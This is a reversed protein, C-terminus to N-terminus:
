LDGGQAAIGALGAACIIFWSRIGPMFAAGYAVSFLMSAVLGGIAGEVTKNPSVRPSLPRKGAARGVFYAFTDGAAVAVIGLLAWHEGGPLLVIRPWVSLFGGIYVVGLVSVAASRLRDAPTGEASIFRFSIIAVCIAMASAAAPYPLLAGSAFALGTVAVEARRDPTRPILMRSYEAACVLVAAFALLTFPWGKGYLIAGVLIPVLVAATAIRKWLM